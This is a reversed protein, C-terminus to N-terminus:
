TLETLVADALRPWAERAWEGFELDTLCGLAVGADPDVWLFGGDRGFHGFTQPSNRTGTWHPHKGGRLELGLGWDNPEQRGFGPVIGELGPFQVTVAEDLTERAIRSPELLERAVALLHELAADVGSGASGDLEFGWVHEFYSAFPMEAREAVFDGLLEFGTDSYIRRKGPVTVPARGRFPLGSAHALLHRVTSGPPGAPEDLDVIGEEAAVLVAVATALKTVSAWSFQRTEDGYSAESRGTVAVAVHRSPWADVQRLAEVFVVSGAHVPLPDGGAAGVLLPDAVRAGDPDTGVDPDRPRRRDEGVVGIRGVIGVLLGADADPDDLAREALGARREVVDHAGADVEGPGLIECLDAPRVCLSEAVARGAVVPITVASSSLRQRTSISACAIIAHVLEFGADEVVAESRALRVRESDLLLVHQEVGLGPVEDLVDVGHEGGRLFPPVGRLDVRLQHLRDDLDRRGDAPRRSLRAGM